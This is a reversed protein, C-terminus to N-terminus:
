HAPQAIAAAATRRFRIGRARGSDVAFGTVAGSQREFQLARDGHQFRDAAGSQLPGVLSEPARLVLDADEVELVWSADLEDSRYTGAYEDLAYEETLYRDAVANALGSPDADSRNALCIVTFRQDPFRLMETRFGLMGGAHRVTPLGKWTGHGLGGAYDLQTGDNLTGRTLLADILAPGGVRPEYFNADWRALDGATTLLGGSGVITFEKRIERYGREGDPTYCRVRHPIAANDDDFFTRTMGLPGFLRREAYQRLSQGAVRGVLEALLKYGSNCYLHQGGPAFNLGTQRALLALGDSNSLPAEFSHGALAWLDIFDRLGSTHHLLHRVAIPDACEHLEPFYRRIPDDLSLGGEQALLLVSAATFQKSVSAIYFVSEPTIPERRELDAMGYCREYQIHGDRLVSLIGGPATANDWDAFLADIDPRPESM